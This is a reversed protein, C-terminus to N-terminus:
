FVAPQLENMSVPRHPAARVHPNAGVLGKAASTSAISVHGCAGQAFQWATWPARMMIIMDYWAVRAMQVLNPDHL